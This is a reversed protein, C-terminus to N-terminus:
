SPRSTSSEVHNNLRCNKKGMEKYKRVVQEVGSEISFQHFIEFDTQPQWHNYLSVTHGLKELAEKSKLLQIEGGGKQFFASFCTNFLIKM